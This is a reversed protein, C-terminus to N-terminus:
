AYQAPQGLVRGSRVCVWLVCSRNGAGFGAMAGPLPQTTTSRVTVVSSALPLSTATLSNVVKMRPFPAHIHAHPSAWPLWLAQARIDYYPPYGCLPLTVPTLPQLIPSVFRSLNAALQVQLQYETM